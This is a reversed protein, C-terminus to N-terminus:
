KDLDGDTASDLHVNMRRAPRALTVEASLVSAVASLLSMALVIVLTSPGMGFRGLLFFIIGSTLVSVGLARTLQSVSAQGDIGRMYLAPAGWVIALVFVGALADGFLSQEM